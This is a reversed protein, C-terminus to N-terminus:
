GRNSAFATARLMLNKNIGYTIEPMLHYNNGQEFVEKFMSQSLRLNLTNAPINSAPDTVVFLEQTVAKQFVIVMLIVVINKM